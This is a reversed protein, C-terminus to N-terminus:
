SGAVRLVIVSVSRPPLALEFSGGAPIVQRRPRIVDPAAFSNRTELSPATILHWTAEPDVDVGRLNIRTSVASAKETNVVKVGEYMVELFQGYLRPDIRGEVHGADVVVRAEETRAPSGWLSCALALGVFGLCKGLGCDRQRESLLAMPM